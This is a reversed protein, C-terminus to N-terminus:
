SEDGLGSSEEDASGSGHEGRRTRYESVFERLRDATAARVRRTETDIIHKCKAPEDVPAVEPALRAGLGDCEHGFLTSIEFLFQAADQIDIVSMEAKAAEVDAKRRKAKTLLLDESDKTGAKPANPDIEGVQLRVEREIIWKVAKATDIQLAKGKGGGSETPMGERVFEGVWRESYGVIAAFEKKNVLAM